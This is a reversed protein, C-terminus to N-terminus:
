QTPNTSDLTTSQSAPLAVSPMGALQKYYFVTVGYKVSFNNRWTGHGFNLHLGNRFPFASLDNFYRFITAYGDPAERYRLVGGFPRNSGGPPLTYGSDFYYGGDAWEEQGGYIRFEGAGDYLTLNGELYGLPWAQTAPDLVNPKNALYVKPVLSYNQGTTVLILGVLKGNGELQATYDPGYVQLQEPEQYATRLQTSYTESLIALKVHVPVPAADARNATLEIDIGNQYPMPFNSYFLYADGSKIVGIPTSHHLLVRDAQGFFALFPLDVGVQNGYKVRLRLLSPDDGRTPIRFQLAGIAGAGALHIIAPAGAHVDFNYNQIKELTDIYKEPSKINDAMQTLTDTPFNDGNGTYSNVRTGQPFKMGTATFWQPKASGGYTMIRLRHQYPIPIISGDSGYESYQWLFVDRLSAPVQHSKDSFWDEIPGDFVIQDDVEIRMRGLQALNGWEVLDAPLNGDFWNSPTILNIFSPTADQTFWLDSLVGPGSRDVLVYASVSKGHADVIATERYTHWQRNTSQWRHNTSNWPEDKGWYDWFTTGGQKNQLQTYNASGNSWPIGAVMIPATRNGFYGSLFDFAGYVPVRKETSVPAAVAPKSVQPMSNTEPGSTDISNASADAPSSTVNRWTDISDKAFVTSPNFEFGVYIATCFILLPLVTPTIYWFLFSLARRLFWFM